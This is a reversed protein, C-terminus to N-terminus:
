LHASESKKWALTLIDGKGLEAPLPTHQDEELLSTVRATHDPIALTLACAEDNSLNYSRTILANDSLRRKFATLAVHDTAGKIYAYQAPLQGSHSKTQAMTVPVQAEQARWYSAFRTTANISEFSFSVTQQGLCQADPTPFYGWDGLEGVSRLLTIAITNTDPLIEYENLGYNGVTVGTRGDFLSVFAEQHQPNSPNQWFQANTHNPRKVTEFISDAFHHDTKLHTPFLVRLRHNTMQNDFSTQFQLRPSEKEMRIVTKITFPAKEQSRKAQREQIDIVAEMEAQLCDDATLPIDFTQTLEIEALYATNTLVRLKCSGQHALYPSDHDPQRFIYENGIDGCDEYQLCNDFRNGNLKDDITLLGNTAIIVKLFENELCSRDQHFLMKDTDAAQCPQDTEKLTLCQWSMASLTLPLRLQVKIAFYAERFTREPLAYDFAIDTGLIEAEEIVRGAADIVQFQPQRTELYEQAEQYVAKPLRQGFPFVKWTLTLDSVTKKEHGCTNFLVFPCSDEPFMSTDIAEAIQNASREALYTGVEYAKDFRPMMEQHVSDVSCGCISDHPHNQMLTKWAYRLQDHPYTGTVEYAMTALPETINELQRSVKTNAQKLYIRASATNALTYWGDTEQSTMEGSVISLEEPLEQSLDALYDEFCSHVFEYDPYLKNALAIAKTVDLQVPQHDVGNMMLLHRTSAFREADALKQDWFQRARKEETPIENGNSYWNAFLLGLIRSDDPGQWIMESFQSSYKESTDVQNNFGTPRIGRGFAAANLGAKRMLQPTQGMNGFTDPFYGLPVSAGWKDCDEKGVLMNRVNSESSTLFADQLIYFPGIRLKGAQIAQRIDAEREPKVQLYDDLIITQGDLHFSHFDPDTKFLDLLDDILQILRMHHQEYAMYWERDWHSHSIIHVKKPTM